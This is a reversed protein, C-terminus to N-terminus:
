ANLTEVSFVKIQFIDKVTELIYIIVQRWNYKNISKHPIELLM